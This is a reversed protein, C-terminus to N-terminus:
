VKRIDAREADVENVGGVDRIKAEREDRVIQRFEV